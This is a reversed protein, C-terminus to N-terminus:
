GLKQPSVRKPPSVQAREDTVRICKKVREDAAQGAGQGKKGLRAQGQQEM